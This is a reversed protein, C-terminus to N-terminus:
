SACEAIRDLAVGLPGSANGRSDRCLARRITEADVGHQLAISAVIAAERAHV